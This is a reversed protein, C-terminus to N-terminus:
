LCGLIAPVYNRTQNPMRALWDWAHPPWVQQGQSFFTRAWASEVAGTGANYAALILGYAYHASDGGYHAALRSARQAYQSLHTRDLRAAADLSQQPDTPDIGLNAATDPEFQAIGIANTPSVADPDYKSEQWIQWEFALTDIQYKKADNRAVALWPSTTPPALRRCTAQGSLGFTPPTTPAPPLNQAQPAPGLSSSLRNLLLGGLLSVIVCSLVLFFLVIVWFPLGSKQQNSTGPPSSLQPQQSM